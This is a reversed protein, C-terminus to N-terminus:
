LLDFLLRVACASEDAGKNAMLHGDFDSNLCFLLGYSIFYSKMFRM